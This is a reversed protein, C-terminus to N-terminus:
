HVLHVANPLAFFGEPALRIANTIAHLKALPNPMAGPCEVISNWRQEHTITTVIFRHEGTLSSFFEVAFKM